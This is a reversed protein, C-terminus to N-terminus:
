GGPSWLLVTQRDYERFAHGRYLQLAPENREDVSLTLWEAGSDRARYLAFRLLERGLGRGRAPRVLGLYSLERIGPQPGATLIVVGAPGQPTSALVWDLPGRASTEYGAIVEDPTRTGDLEPCDLTDEYTAALVAAFEPDPGGIARFTLPSISPDFLPPDATPRCLFVLQTIARFGARELPDARDREGPPILSQAQRMGAARLRMIAARALADAVAPDSAGPPSVVASRGPHFQVLVAGVLQERSRAVLLGAPDLEGSDILQRVREARVAVVDPALPAFLARCAAPYESPTTASVSAATM